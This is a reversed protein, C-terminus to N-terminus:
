NTQKGRRQSILKMKEYSGDDMRYAYGTKGDATTKRSRQKLGIEKLFFVLQSFLKSRYDSRLDHAFNIRYRHKNEDLFAVVGGMNSSPLEITTDFEGERYPGFLEM